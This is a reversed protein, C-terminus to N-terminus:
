KTTIWKSAMTADCAMKAYKLSEADIEGGGRLYLWAVMDAQTGFGTNCGGAMDDPCGGSSYTGVGECGLQIQEATWFSGYYEICTSADDISNCSGRVRDGTKKADDADELERVLKYDEHIKRAEEEEMRRYEAEAEQELRQQEEPTLEKQEPNQQAEESTKKPAPYEELVETEVECGTLFLAVLAILFIKKM